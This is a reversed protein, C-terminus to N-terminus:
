KAVRYNIGLTNLLQLFSGRTFGERKIVDDFDRWSLPIVFDKAIDAATTPKGRYDEGFASTLATKPFGWHHPSHPSPLM